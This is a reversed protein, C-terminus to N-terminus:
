LAKEEEFAVEMIETFRDWPIATAETSDINVGGNQISNTAPDYYWNPVEKIKAPAALVDYEIQPNEGTRTLLETGRIIAALRGLPIKENKQPRSLINVHGSSRRQVVIDYRGGAQARLYGPLSINDSEILVARLNGLRMEIAKGEKKLDEYAKPLEYIRRVEEMHHAEMLPIVVNVVKSPDSPFQKNLSGILGSLGFAKNLPDKSLTGLGFKDDREAYRLLKSLAPDNEIRLYRAVLFSATTSEGTGHHNFPGEGVDILLEGKKIHDEFKEKDANPNLSIDAKDAGPFDKGGFHRLLYIALITDPQPRVPLVIRSIQM